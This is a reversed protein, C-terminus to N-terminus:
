RGRPSPIGQAYLRNQINGVGYGEAAMRFIREVVAMEPEYVVLTDHADDFRFGYKPIPSVSKGEMAKRLKGRKTREAIKKREWGSIVDM